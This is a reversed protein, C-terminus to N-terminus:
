VIVGDKGQVSPIAAVESLHVGRTAVWAATVRFRPPEADGPVRQVDILCSGSAASGRSICVTWKEDDDHYQDIDIELCKGLDVNSLGIYPTPHFGVVLCLGHRQCISKDLGLATAVVGYTAQYHEEESIGDFGMSKPYAERYLKVREPVVVGKQTTALHGYLFREFKELGDRVDSPQKLLKRTDPSYSLRETVDGPWREIIDKMMDNAFEVGNGRCLARYESAARSKALAGPGLHQLAIHGHEDLKLPRSKARPMIGYVDQTTRIKIDNIYQSPIWLSGRESAGFLGAPAGVTFTLGFQHEIQSLADELLKSLAMTKFDKPLIYGPCDVWVAVVYDREQTAARQMSGLRGVQAFFARLRRQTGVGPGYSVDPTNKEAPMGNLFRIFVIYAIQESRSDYSEGDCFESFSSVARETFYTHELFLEALAVDPDNTEALRKKYYNAAYPSLKSVEDDSLHRPNPEAKLSALPDDSDVARTIASDLGAVLTETAVPNKVCPAVRDSAWAVRIRQAYLLEQRTWLRSFWSCLGCSNLCQDMKNNLIKELIEFKREFQVKSLKLIRDLVGRLWSCIELACACLSGPLLAVVDLTQYILPINALTARVAEDDQPICLQDIWCAGHEKCLAALRARFDDLIWEAGLIMDVPTYDLDARHGIRRSRRDFDGWTYSIAIANGRKLEIHKTTIVLHPTSSFTCDVDVCTEFSAVRVRTRAASPQEVTDRKPVSSASFPFYKSRFDHETAGEEPKWRFPIGIQHSPSSAAPRARHDM